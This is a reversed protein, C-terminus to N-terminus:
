RRRRRALGALGLMALAGPAPINNIDIWVSYGTQSGDPNLETYSLLAILQFVAEPALTVQGIEVATGYAGGGRFYGGNSVVWGPATPTGTGGTWGSTGALLDGSTATGGYPDSMGIVAFSDFATHWTGTYTPPGAALVGNADDTWFTMPADPGSGVSNVRDGSDDAYGPTGNDNHPTDFYAYWTYVLEGAPGGLTSADVVTYGTGLFAAFASGTLAAAGIVAISKM